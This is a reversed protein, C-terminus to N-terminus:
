LEKVCTVSYDRYGERVYLEHVRKNKSLVILWVQDHGMKKAYSECAGLLMKGVGKGRYDGHVFVDSIYAYEKQLTMYEREDREIWAYAFGIVRGDDEAVFLKGKHTKMKKLFEDLRKQAINEGTNWIAPELERHFEQFAVLGDRVVDSDQSVFERIIMCFYMVGNFFLEIPRMVLM